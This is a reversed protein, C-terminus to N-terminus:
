KHLSLKKCKSLNQFGALKSQLYVCTLLVEVGERQLGKSLIRKQIYGSIFSIRRLSLLMEIFLDTYVVM